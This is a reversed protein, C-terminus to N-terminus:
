GIKAVLMKAHAPNPGYIFVVTPASTSIKVATTTVAPAAQCQKQLLGSGPGPEDVVNLTHHGVSLPFNAANYNSITAPSTPDSSDNAPKNTAVLINDPCRGDIRLDVGGYKSTDEVLGEVNSVLLGMGAPPKILETQGNDSKPPEVEDVAAFSPSKLSGFQDGSGMVITQQEGKVWGANSINTGAQVFDIPAGFKKSGAPFMYLNAYDITVMNLPEGARPSVYASVQGYALHSILPKDSAGPHSTDYFDLAPGPKSTPLLYLNVVRIRGVPPGTPDYSNRSAFTSPAKLGALVAASAPQALCNLVTLASLSAATIVTGARLGERRCTAAVGLAPPDRPVRPCAVAKRMRMRRCGLHVVCEGSYTAM